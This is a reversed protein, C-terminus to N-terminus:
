SLNTIKVTCQSHIRAVYKLVTLLTRTLLVTYYVQLVYPLVYCAGCSGDAFQSFTRAFTQRTFHIAKRESCEVHELPARRTSGQRSVTVKAQKSNTLRCGSSIRTRHHGGKSKRAALTCCHGFLCVITLRGRCDTESAMPGMRTQRTAEISRTSAAASRVQLM